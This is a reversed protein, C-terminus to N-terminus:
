VMGRQWVIGVKLSLSFSPKQLCQPFLFFHQYGANEGKGMINGVRDSLSIMMEAVNIKDDTFAKFKTWDLIKDSPLTLCQSLIDVENVQAKGQCFPAREYRELELCWALKDHIWLIYKTLYSVTKHHM